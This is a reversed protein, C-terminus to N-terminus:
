QNESFLPCRRLFRVSKKALGTKPFARESVEESMTRCSDNLSPSELDLERDSCVSGVTLLFTMAHHEDKSTCHLSTDGIFNPM